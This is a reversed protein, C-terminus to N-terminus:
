IRQSDKPIQFEEDIELDDIHEGTDSWDEDNDDHPTVGAAVHEGNSSHVNQLSGVLFDVINPHPKHRAQAALHESNVKINGEVYSEVYESCGRADHESGDGGKWFERQSEPLPKQKNMKIEDSLWSVTEESLYNSFMEKLKKKSRILQVKATTAPQM